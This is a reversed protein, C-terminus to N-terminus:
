TSNNLSSTLLSLKRTNKDGEVEDDGRYYNEVLKYYKLSNKMRSDEYAGMKYIQNFRLQVGTEIVDAYM